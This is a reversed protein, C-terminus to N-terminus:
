YASFRDFFLDFRKLLHCPRFFLIWPPLYPFQWEQWSCNVQPSVSVPSAPNTNQHLFIHNIVCVIGLRWGLFGVFVKLFREHIRQLDGLTEFCSLFPHQWGSVQNEPLSEDKRLCMTSSWIFDHALLGPQLHSLYHMLSGDANSCYM